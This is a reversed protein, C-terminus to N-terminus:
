IFITLIRDKHIILKDGKQKFEIFNEDLDWKKWGDIYKHTVGYDTRIKYM